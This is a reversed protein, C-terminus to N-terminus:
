GEEVLKTLRDVNALAGREMGSGIMGELDDLNDFKSVITLKTTGDAQAEFTVSEQSIHGPYPEYEFTRALKRPKDVETFVGRFSHEGHEGSVFRWIGGTRVDLTDVITSDWWQIVQDPKTYALWLREPTAKFVKTIRVELNDKDITFTAEAM